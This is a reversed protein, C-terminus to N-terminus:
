EKAYNVKRESWEKSTSWTTSSDQIAHVLSMNEILIVIRECQSNSWKSSKPHSKVTIRKYNEGSTTKYYEKKWLM